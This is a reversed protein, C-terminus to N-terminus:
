LNENYIKLKWLLSFSYPPIGFFFFPLNMRILTMGHSSHALILFHWCPYLKGFRCISHILQLYFFLINRWGPSFNYMTSSIQCYNPLPCILTETRQWLLGHWSNIFAEGLRAEAVVRFCFLFLFSSLYLSDFLSVFPLLNLVTM